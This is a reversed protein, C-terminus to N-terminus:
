LMDDVAGNDFVASGKKQAMKNICRELRRFKDDKEEDRVNKHEDIEQEQMSVIKSKEYMLGSIMEAAQTQTALCTSLYALENRKSKNKCKYVLDHTCESWAEDYVTRVQIEVYKRDYWLLYHISSYGEKSIHHEFVDKGVVQYIPLDNEERLYLKPKEVIFDENSDGPYDDYWNKIYYDNTKHFTEWIWKHVMEWQQQYRILIRIGILDTIVKYYNSKNMPRYKEINYDDGPEEALIAKKKIYKVLLSEVSKIRYRASHIEKLENDKLIKMLLQEATGECKSSYSTKSTWYQKYIEKINGKLQPDRQLALEYKDELEAEQIIKELENDQGM